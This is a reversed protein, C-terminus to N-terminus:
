WITEFSASSNAKMNTETSNNVFKEFFKRIRLVKHLIHLVREDLIGTTHFIGRETFSPDENVINHVEWYSRTNNISTCNSIFSSIKVVGEDNRYPNSNTVFRGFKKEARRTWITQLCDIFFLNRYFKWNMWLIFYWFPTQIRMGSFTDSWANKM